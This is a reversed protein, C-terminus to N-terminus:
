ALSKGESDDGEKNEFILIITSGESDTALQVQKAMKMMLTFGQGLSKKTSYGAMLTMNPLQKLNFGPGRDEVIVYFERDRQLITMKGEEAHKLINTIAESIVLIFSMIETQNFGSELLSVKAGDRAKPIDPREKITFECLISEEKYKNVETKQILLFKRQTAAFMVDRYVQWVEEQESLSTCEDRPHISFYIDEKVDEYVELFCQHYKGQVGIERIRSYVDEKEQIWRV